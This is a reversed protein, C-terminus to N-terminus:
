KDSMESITYIKMGTGDALEFLTALEEDCLDDALEKKILICWARRGSFILASEAEACLVDLCELQGRNEVVVAGLVARDGFFAAFLAKLICLFGFVALAFVSIQLILYM